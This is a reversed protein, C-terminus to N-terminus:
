KSRLASRAQCNDLNANSSGWVDLFQREFVSVNPGDATDDVLQLLVNDDVATAGGEPRSGTLVQWDGVLTGSDSTSGDIILDKRHMGYICKHNIGSLQDDSPYDRKGNIMLVRVDCGHQEDNRLDTAIQRDGVTFQNSELYIKTTTPDHPACYVKKLADDRPDTARPFFYVSVPSGSYDHASASGRRREIYEDQWYAYYASYIEPMGSIVTMTQFRDTLQHENWNASEQVVIDAQEFLIFKNHDIGTTAGVCAGRCSHWNAYVPAGLADTAGTTLQGGQTAMCWLRAAQPTWNPSDERESGVRGQDQLCRAPTWRGPYRGSAWMEPFRLPGETYRRLDRNYTDPPASRQDLVVHLRDGAAYFDNILQDVLHLHDPTAQNVDFMSIYVDQDPNSTILSDLEEFVRYTNGAV